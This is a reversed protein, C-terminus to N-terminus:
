SELDLLFKKIKVGSSFNGMGGSSKIVRHCPVLILLPNKGIATGTARCANPKGVLGAMGKYSITKGYPVKVLESWVKKEFDTGTLFYPTLKIEKSKKELFKKIENEIKKNRNEIIVPETMYFRKAIKDLYNNFAMEGLGIYNILVLREDTLNVNGSDSVPGPWIYYINGIISKFSHYNLETKFTNM